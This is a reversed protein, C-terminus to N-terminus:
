EKTNKNNDLDIQRENQIETIKEEFERCTKKQRVISCRPFTFINLTKYEFWKHYKVTKKPVM